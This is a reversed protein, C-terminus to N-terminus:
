KRGSGRRARGGEVLDGNTTAQPNTGAETGGDDDGDPGRSYVLAKGNRVRYLLPHPAFPDQPISALYEPMLAGLTPPPAGSRLQSARLALRTQTVRWRAQIVSWRLPVGSYVPALAQNLPDGPPSPTAGANYYPQRAGGIVRDMYSRYDEIVRGKPTLVYRLMIGFQGPQIGTGGPAAGPAGGTLTALASWPSGRQRLLAALAQTTGEKEVTLTDPLGSASRELREMERAVRAATGADLRDAVESMPGLGITTIAVGVLGHIVPGGRPVQAGLRLCDLYSQAADAYRGEREALDGEAVLRRAFERAQAM